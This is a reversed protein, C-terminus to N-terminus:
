WGSEIVSISAVASAAVGSVAMWTVASAVALPTGGGAVKELDAESLEGTNAPKAPLVIHWSGPAEAHVLIKPLSAAPVELYRTFTGAPDAIFEKRFGENEWCRKVIKAELDHRTFTKAQESM